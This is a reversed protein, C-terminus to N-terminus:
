IRRLYFSRLQGQAEPATTFAEGDFLPVQLHKGKNRILYVPIYWLMHGKRIVSQGLKSGPVSMGSDMMYRRVNDNIDVVFPGSAGVSRPSIHADVHTVELDKIQDVSMQRYVPKNSKRFITLKTHSNSFIMNHPLTGSLCAVHQAGRITAIQEPLSLMEPSVVVFGNSAMMREIDREGVEFPIRRQLQTRTLYIHQNQYKDIDDLQELAREAVRDFIRAFARYVRRGPVHACEPVVVESFMTPREIRILRRIDIGALALFETYVGTLNAVGDYVIPIDPEKEIAYWLRGVLDMLFHGWHCWLRGLYMVRMNEQPPNAYDYLGGWSDVPSLADFSSLEVYSGTADVVGARGIGNVLRYPLVTADKIRVCTPEREVLLPLQDLLKYNELFLRDMYRYGAADM